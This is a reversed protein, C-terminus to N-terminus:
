KFSSILKALLNNLAEQESRALGAFVVKENEVHKGIVKDILQRGEKTLVVIVGRRDSSDRERRILGNRELRDLRATMTGSTVM